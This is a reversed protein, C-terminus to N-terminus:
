YKGETFPDYWENSTARYLRELLSRAAQQPNNRLTLAPFQGTRRYDDRDYRPFPDRFLGGMRRRQFLYASVGGRLGTVAIGVDVPGLYDASEYVGGLLRFLRVTLGVIQSEIIVLGENSPAAAQGCFLHGGGDDDIAVALLYDPTFKQGERIEEGMSARFGDAVRRWMMHDGLDLSYSQPFVAPSCAERLLQNLAPRADRAGPALREKARDLIGDDPAVPRVRIHLFGYDPFPQLPAREIAEVLLEERDRQWRQRREYLRAVEGETLRVNGTPGRGYYRNDGDKTVMHPARPSAPVVVAICGVTPDDETPFPRIDITPPESITSRVISDIRERVGALPFPAFITLRKHQDEGLGFLLVGGDCALAAVDTALDISKHSPPLDRKSEFTATETLDGAQARTEIEAASTPIWM